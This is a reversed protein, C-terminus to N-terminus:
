TAGSNYRGRKSAAIVTIKGQGKSAVHGSLVAIITILLADAGPVETTLLYSQRKDAYAYRLAPVPLHGQLWHLRESEARLEGHPRRPEVKLYHTETGACLRCVQAGSEGLTVQEWTSGEVLAALEHPLEIM